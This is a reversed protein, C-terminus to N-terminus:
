LIEMSVVLKVGRRVDELESPNLGLVMPSHLLSAISTIFSITGTCEVLANFNEPLVLQVKSLESINSRKSDRNMERRILEHTLDILTQLVNIYFGGENKIDDM